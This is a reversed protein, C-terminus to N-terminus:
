LHLLPFFIGCLIFLAAWDQLKNAMIAVNNFLGQSLFSYVDSPDTNM